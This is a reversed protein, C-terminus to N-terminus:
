RDIVEGSTDEDPQEALEENGDWDLPIETVASRDVEIIRGNKM